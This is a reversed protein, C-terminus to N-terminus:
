AYLRIFLLFKYGQVTMTWDARFRENSMTDRGFGPSLGLWDQSAVVSNRNMPKPGDGSTGLHSFRFHQWRQQSEVGKRGRSAGARAGSGM